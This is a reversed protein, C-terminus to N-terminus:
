DAEVPVLFHAGILAFADPAAVQWFCASPATSDQPEATASHSVFSYPPPDQACVNGVAVAPFDTRVTLSEACAGEPHEGGLLSGSTFVESLDTSALCLAHDPGLIVFGSM